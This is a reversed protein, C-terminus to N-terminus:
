GRRREVERIVKDLQELRRDLFEAPMSSSYREGGDDNFLRALEQDYGLLERFIPNAWDDGAGRADQYEHGKLGAAIWRALPAVQDKQARLYTL